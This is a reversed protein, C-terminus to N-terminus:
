GDVAGRERNATQGADDASLAELDGTQVNWLTAYTGGRELLEEHTGREVIRGDEVVLIRDASRVTSLRHAVVLTTRDATLERLREQLIRETESDVHSTAEDFVLIQPDAAIARAIALRQRQGGSLRSGREGVRTDYGAPLDAVFEHAGARRAAAEIREDSADPAGYAVNYRVSGDFLHSDQGVYGIADALRESSYNRVERGDVTVAGDDVEYLGVLLKVLTSKGAGTPGVIGVTAGGDVAATLGEFVPRDAGPYRFSVDEFAVPPGAPVQDGGASTERSEGGGALGHIRKASAKASTYGGIVGGLNELPLTIRELYFLFPVLQGATLTGSFLPPTAVLIWYSGVALTLVLWTGAVLRNAPRQRVTLRRSAIRARCHDRSSSAVRDREYREATFAKVVAVAGLNTELRANLAGRAQRVRDELPELRRSYWYNIGAVVPGATLVFLALQWNLASMYVLASVLTVLIWVGADLFVTFFGDLQNVDDNLAGIVDGTRNAEFFALERRLSDDVTQVRIDHLLRQAYVGYGYDSLLAGLNTLLNLAVLLATVFGLM